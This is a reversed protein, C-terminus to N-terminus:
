RRVIRIERFDQAPLCRRYCVEFDAVAFAVGTKFPRTSALTPVRVQLTDDNCRVRTHGTGGAVRNGIRQNVTVELTGPETAGAACTVKVPVIIAAGEAQLKAKKGISIVPDPPSQPPSQGAVASSLPILAALAGGIGIALLVRMTPRHKV